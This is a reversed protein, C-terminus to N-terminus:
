YPDHQDLHNKQDPKEPSVLVRCLLRKENSLNIPKSCYFGLSKGPYCNSQVIPQFNKEEICMNLSPLNSDGLALIKNKGSWDYSESLPLRGQSDEPGLVRWRAESWSSEPFDHLCDDVAWQSYDDMLVMSVKMRELNIPTDSSASVEITLGGDVLQFALSWHVGEVATLCSDQGDSEWVANISFKRHQDIDWDFFLGIEELIPQDNNILHVRGGIFRWEFHKGFPGRALLRDPNNLDIQLNTQQIDLGLDRCCTIMKNLRKRRLEPTNTKQWIWTSDPKHIDLFEFQKIDQLLAMDNVIHLAHVTCIGTIQSSFEKVFDCTAEIDQDTEGPYGVLLYLYVNIGAKAAQKVVQRATAVKFPKNMKELVNDSASELGFILSHCGAQKMLTLLEEDLNARFTANSAWILSFDQDILWRCLGKLAQTNPNISQDNFTLQTLGYREKLDTIEDQLQKQPRRRYISIDNCIRCNYPCGRALLITFRGKDYLSLDLLSYDPPPIEALDVTKPWVLLTQGQQQTKVDTPLSTGQLLFDLAPKLIEEGEGFVILDAPSNKLFKGFLRLGNPPGGFIIKTEPRKTKIIAAIEIAFFLNPGYISFGVVKPALREFDEWFSDLFPMFSNLLSTCQDQLWLRIGDVEWLGDQDKIGNAVLLGTTEPSLGDDKMRRYITANLDRVETMFGAALAAAALYAAGLPPLTPRGWPPPVVLLLDTKDKTM